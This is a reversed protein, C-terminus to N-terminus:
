TAPKLIASNFAHTRPATAPQACRHACHHGLDHLRYPIANNAHEGQQKLGAIFPKASLANQPFRVLLDRVVCLSQDLTQSPGAM